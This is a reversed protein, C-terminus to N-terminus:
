HAVLLFLSLGVRWDSLRVEAFSSNIRIMAEAESHWLDLGCIALKPITSFSFDFFIIM